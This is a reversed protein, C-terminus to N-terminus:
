YIIKRRIKSSSSYNANNGDPRANTIPTETLNKQVTDVKQTMLPTLGRARLTMLRDYNIDFEHEKETQTMQATTGILQPIQQTSSEKSPEKPLEKASIQSALLKIRNLDQLKVSATQQPVGRPGFKLNRLLCWQLQVLENLEHITDSKMAEIFLKTGYNKIILNGMYIIEETSLDSSLVNKELVPDWNPASSNEFYLQLSVPHYRKVYPLKTVNSSQLSEMNKELTEKTTEEVPKITEPEKASTKATEETVVKPSEVTPTEKTILEELKDTPIGANINELVSLLYPEDKDALVEFLKEEVDRQGKEHLAEIFDDKLKEFPSLRKDEDESSVPLTLVKARLEELTEEVPMPPSTEALEKGYTDKLMQKVEDRSIVKLSNLKELAKRNPATDKNFVQETMFAKLEPTVAERESLIENMIRKDNAYLSKKVSSGEKKINYFKSKDENYYLRMLYGYLGDNRKEQLSKTIEEETPEDIKEVTRQPKINLRKPM